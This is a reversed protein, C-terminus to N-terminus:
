ARSYGRHSGLNTALRFTEQDEFAFALSEHDRRSRKATVLPLHHTEGLRPNDGEFACRGM